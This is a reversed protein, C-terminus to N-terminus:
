VDQISKMIKHDLTSHLFNVTVILGQGLYGRYGRNARQQTVGPTERKVWTIFHTLWNSFFYKNTSKVNTSNDLFINIIFQSLSIFVNYGGVNCRRTPDINCGGGGWLSM